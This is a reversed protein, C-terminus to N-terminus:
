DPIDRLNQYYYLLYVLVSQQYGENRLLLVSPRSRGVFDAINKGSPLGLVTTVGRTVVSAPSPRILLM